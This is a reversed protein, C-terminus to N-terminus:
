RKPVEIIGASSSLFRLKVNVKVKMSKVRLEYSSDLPSPSTANKLAFRQSPLLLASM